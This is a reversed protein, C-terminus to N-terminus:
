DSLCIVENKLQLEEINKLIAEKSTKGPIVITGGFAGIEAPDIIAKGLFTKKRLAPNRDIFFRINCEKFETYTLLGRTFASSGWVAIEKKKKLLAIKEHMREAASGM